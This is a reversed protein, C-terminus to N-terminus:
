RTSARRNARGIQAARMWLLRRMSRLRPRMNPQRCSTLTMTMTMTRPRGDVLRCPSRGASACRPYGGRAGPAGFQQMLDKDCGELESEIDADWRRESPAAAKAAAAAPAPAPAAAELMEQQRAQEKQKRATEEKEQPLAKAQKPQKNKKHSKTKSQASFPSGGADKERRRQGKTARREETKPGADFAEILAAANQLTNVYAAPKWTHHEPDNLIAGDPYNPDIFTKWEVLYEVEARRTRKEVIRNLMFDEQIKQGALLKQLRELVAPASERRAEEWGTRGQDNKIHIDCGASVLVEVCDAHDTGCGFHFATGLQHKADIDAKHKLLLQLLPPFGNVAAEMLPTLEENDALNPNAGRELLLQVAPKQNNAVARSLATSKYMQGEEAPAAESNWEVLMDIDAKYQLLLEILPPFGRLTAEMLPTRGTSNPLNPNAGRELLLLTVEKKNRSVAGDLATLRFSANADFQGEDDTAVGLVNIDVQGDDLLRGVKACDNQQASEVLSHALWDSEESFAQRRPTAAAKVVKKKKAKKKRVAKRTALAKKPPM